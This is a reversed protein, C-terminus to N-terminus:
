CSEREKPFVFFREACGVAIFGIPEGSPSGAPLCNKYSLFTRNEMRRKELNKSFIRFCRYLLACLSVLYRATNLWDLRIFNRLLALMVAPWFIAKALADM